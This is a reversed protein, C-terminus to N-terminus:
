QTPCEAIHNSQALFDTSKLHYNKIIPYKISNDSNLNIRVVQYSFYYRSLLHVLLYRESTTQVLQTQILAYRSNNVINIHAHALAQATITKITPKAPEDSLGEVGANPMIHIPINAYASAIIFVFLIPFYLIKKFFNTM